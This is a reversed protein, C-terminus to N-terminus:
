KDETEVTKNTHEKIQRLLKYYLMDMKNLTHWADYYKRKDTAWSKYLTSFQEVTMEGDMVKLALRKMKRRQRTVVDHPIRKILKGTPKIIYRTKLFTFGHSLKIVQTKHEHVHLGLKEAMEKIRGLVYILFHKDHHVIIRDDMYANYCHIGLVTKCYNDIMHPYFIGAIQSLPSGIGMSKYMMKGGHKHSAPVREYDLSSFVDDMIQQIPREDYSVDLANSYVIVKLLNMLAPEHVYRSIQQLLIDHNINDFYKRFDIKLIYGETGYRNFHWHLQQEFRRRTFSIGKGVQSAGNDHILYHELYPNLVNCIAHQVIMDYPDLARIQRLHGQECLKFTHTPRPMYTGTVLEDHIQRITVLRTANIKQTQYKWSSARQVRFYAANLNDYDIIQEFLSM